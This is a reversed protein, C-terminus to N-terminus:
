RAPDAGTRPTQRRAGAGRPHRKALPWDALALRDPLPLSQRLDRALDSLVPVRIGLYRRPLKHYALMGAADEANGLTELHALATEPTM